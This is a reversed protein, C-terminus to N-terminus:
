EAAAVMPREYIRQLAKVVQAYSPPGDAEPERRAHLVMDDMSILGALVGDANVVPLRRVQSDSMTELASEIDDEPACYYLNQSMAGRVQPVASGTDALTLSMCVDRDTVVGVVRGEDIVPLIGCENDRMKVGAESMTDLSSCVSPNPTMLDRAQM